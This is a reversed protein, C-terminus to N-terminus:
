KNIQNIIEEYIIGTKNIVELAKGVMEERSERTGYESITAINMRLDKNIMQILETV